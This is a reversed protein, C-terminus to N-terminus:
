PTPTPTPTPTTEGGKGGDPCQSSSEVPGNVNETFEGRMNGGVGYMCVLLRGNVACGLDTTAKCVVQTYHGTKMTFSNIRGGNTYKIEDYWMKVGNAGTAGSALNEGLYSFGGVGKRFSGPSHRMAGGTQQAWQKAKAAIAPNWKFLPVGHMCRYKNHADLVNALNSDSPRPGSPAPPTPRPTPPTPRPTPPKPTPAPTPKPAPKPAPKATRRRRRRRRRRRASSSKKSGRRRRRSASLSEKHGEERELLSSGDVSDYDLDMLGGEYELLSSENVSEYDLTQLNKDSDDLELLLAGGNKCAQIQASTPNEIFRAGYLAGGGGGGGSPSPTPTPTPTPSPSPTVKGGGPLPFASKSTDFNTSPLWFVMDCCGGKIKFFGREGWRTGWSNAALIYDPGYGIATVAHMGTKQNSRPVYVGGRYGMFDRYVAYGFAIPGNNLAQKAEAFSRTTRVGPAYFRDQPLQRSYSVGNTCRSPCPPSRGGGNFHDLSNGSGFYPVCTQKNDGNGGTPSGTRQVYQLGGAPNGGRCGDRGGNGCSAIYGASIWGSTGSFAGNSKVCLRGEAAGAAAQAWCSGCKGQDRIHGIVEKCKPWKQRGDFTGRTSNDAMSEGADLLSEEVEPYTEEAEPNEILALTQELIDLFSDAQEKLSEPKEPAYVGDEENTEMIEAHKKPDYVKKLREEDEKNMVLGNLEMMDHLSIEEMWDEMKAAGLAKENIKDALFKTMVPKQDELANKLDEKWLKIKAADDKNSYDDNDLELILEEVVRKKFKEIEAQTMENELKAEKAFEDFAAEANKEVGVAPDFERYFESSLQSLDREM